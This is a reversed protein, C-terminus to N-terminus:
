VLVPVGHGRDDTLIEFAARGTTRASVIARGGRKVRLECSAVKSNLCTKAGGPPDLYTLGVFATRPATFTAEIEADEARGRVQWRGVEYSGSARVLDLAGSSRITEDGIRVAFTTIRPTRFPGIRVRATACEFFVDPADDFGAVQGWAYADTHREGWNHNLSGVWDDFRHTEGDVRISGSLRMMPAIVLSKAKPFPGDYLSEPLLLLPDQGGAMTVDWEIAHGSSEARGIAHTRDLRADGIRVALRETAFTCGGLPQISRVAVHRKPDPDFWIAWLEGLADGGDADRGRPVFSTYRIWLAGAEDPRRGSPPNARLFWSEYHGRRSSRNLRPTSARLADM